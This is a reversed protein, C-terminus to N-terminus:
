KAWLVWPVVMLTQYEREALRTEMLMLRIPFPPISVIIAIPLTYATLLSGGNMIVENCTTSTYEEAHSLVDSYSTPEPFSKGGSLAIKNNKRGLILLKSNEGNTSFMVNCRESNRVITSESLNTVLVMRVNDGLM